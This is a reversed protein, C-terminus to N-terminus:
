KLLPVRKYFPPWLSIQHRFARRVARDGPKRRAELQGALQRLRIHGCASADPHHETQNQDAQLAILFGRQLAFYILLKSAPHMINIYKKRL